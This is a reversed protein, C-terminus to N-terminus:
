FFGLLQGFFMETYDLMCGLLVCHLNGKHLLTLDWSIIAQGTHFLLLVHRGGQCLLQGQHVQGGQLAAPGHRVERLGQAHGPRRAEPVKLLFQEIIAPSRLKGFKLFFM